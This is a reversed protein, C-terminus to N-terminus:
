SCQAICDRLCMPRLTNRTETSRVNIVKHTEDHGVCVISNCDVGGDVEFANHPIDWLADDTGFRSLPRRAWYGPHSGHVSQEWPLCVFQQWLVWPLQQPKVKHHPKSTRFYSQTTQALSVMSLVHSQKDQTCNRPDVALAYTTIQAQGQSNCYNQLCQAVMLIVHSLDQKLIEFRELKSTTVLLRSLPHSM